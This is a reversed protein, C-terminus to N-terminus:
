SSHNMKIMAKKPDQGHKMQEVKEGPCIRVDDEVYMDERNKQPILIQIM